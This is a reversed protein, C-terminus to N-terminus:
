VVLLGRRRPSYVFEGDDGEARLLEGRDHLGELAAFMFGIRRGQTYVPMADLGGPHKAARIQSAEMVTVRGKQRVLDMTQALMADYREQLMGVFQGIAQPGFLPDHHSMFVAELDLTRVLALSELHRVLLHQDADFQMVGPPADVIFDGAFLIGRERDLLCMHDLTHGPTPLVELRYGGYPLVEGGSCPIRLDDSAYVSRKACMLMDLLEDIEPGELSLADAHRYFRRKREPTTPDVEASYVDHVGKAIVYPLNGDHDEHFHTMFVDVNQWPVGLDDVVADLFARGCLDCHGTDILLARRESEVIAFHDLQKCYPFGEVLFTSRYIGEFRRSDSSVEELVRVTSYSAEPCRYEPAYDM